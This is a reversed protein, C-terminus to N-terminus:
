GRRSLPAYPLPIWPVGRPGCCPAGPLRARQPSSRAVVRFPTVKAKQESNSYSEAVAGGPNDLKITHNLM